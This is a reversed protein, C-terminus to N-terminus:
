QHTKPILVIIGPELVALVSLKTVQVFIVTYAYFFCILIFYNLAIIFSEDEQRCCSGHSFNKIFVHGDYTNSVWCAFTQKGNREGRRSPYVEAVRGLAVCRLAASLDAYM